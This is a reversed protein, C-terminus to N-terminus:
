EEEEEETGANRGEYEIYTQGHKMVLKIEKGFVIASGHEVDVTTFQLGSNTSPHPVDVDWLKM